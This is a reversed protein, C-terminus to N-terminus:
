NKEPADSSFESWPSNGVVRYTGTSAEYVVKGKDTYRYSGTAIDYEYVRINSTSTEGSYYNETTFYLNFKNPTNKNSSRILSWSVDKLMTKTENTMNDFITKAFQTDSAEANCFCGDINNGVFKTGFANGETQVKALGACIEKLGNGLKISFKTAPAESSVCYIADNTCEACGGESCYTVYWDDSHYLLHELKAAETYGMSLIESDVPVEALKKVEDSDLGVGVSNFAYSESLLEQAAVVCSKCEAIAATKRAKDIFGTLTPVLMTAIIALIILIIVLEVLTFGSDAQKKETIKKM